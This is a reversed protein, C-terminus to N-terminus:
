GCVFVVLASALPAFPPYSAAFRSCGEKQLHLVRQLLAHSPSIPRRRKSQMSSCCVSSWLESVYAAKLQSDFGAESICSSTVGLGGSYLYSFHCGLCPCLWPKLYSSFWCSPQFCQCLEFTEVARQFSRMSLFLASLSSLYVTVMRDCCIRSSSFRCSERLRSSLSPLCRAATLFM